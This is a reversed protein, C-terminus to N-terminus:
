TTQAAAPARTGNANANANSSLEAAGSMYYTRKWEADDRVALVLLSLRVGSELPEVHHYAGESHLVATAISHTHRHMKSTARDPTGPRETTPEVYVLDSGAWGARSGFAVNLSVDSDDTHTSFVRDGFTLGGDHAYRLVYVRHRECLPTTAFPGGLLPALTPLVERVLTSAVRTAFPLSNATREDIAVRTTTGPAAKGLHATIEDELAACAPLSLLPFSIAKPGLQTCITRLAGQGSAKLAEALQPSLVDRVDISADEM